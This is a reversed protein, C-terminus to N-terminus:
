LHNPPSFDKNQTIRLLELFPDEPEKKEVQANVRTRDLPSFGLAASLQRLTKVADNKVRWAPHLRAAGIETHLYKGEQKLTEEADQLDFYANCYIEITDVDATALIGMKQLRECVEYWKAAHRKDFTPPPAPIGDAPPVELRRSHRDKRYTGDRKHQETSKAPFPM